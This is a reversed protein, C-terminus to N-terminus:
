RTARAMFFCVSRIINQASLYFALTHVTYKIKVSFIFRSPEFSLREASFMKQEQSVNSMWIRSTEKRLTISLKSRLTVFVIQFHKAGSGNLMKSTQLSYNSLDVDVSEHLCVYFVKSENMIPGDDYVALPSTTSILGQNAFSLFVPFEWKVCCSSRISSSFLQGRFIHCSQAKEVAQIFLRSLFPNDKCGILRKDRCHM